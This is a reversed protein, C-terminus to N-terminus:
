KDETERLSLDLLAAGCVVIALSVMLHEFIPYFDDKAMIIDTSAAIYFKIGMYIFGLTLPLLFINMVSITKQSIGEVFLRFSGRKRSKYM